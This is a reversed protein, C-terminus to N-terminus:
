EPFESAKLADRYRYAEAVIDDLTPDDKYKGALGLLGKPEVELFVLEGASIHQELETRLAELAADRTEGFANMEPAGLVSATFKGNLPLVSIPFTM